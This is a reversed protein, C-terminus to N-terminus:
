RVATTGLTLGVVGALRWRASPEEVWYPLVLQTHAPLCASPPRSDHHPPGGICPPAVEGEMGVLGERVRQLREYIVSLDTSPGEIEKTTSTDSSTAKSSSEARAVM